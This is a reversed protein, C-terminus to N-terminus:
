RPCNQGECFYTDLFAVVGINEVRKLVLVLVLVLVFGGNIEMEFSKIQNREKKKGEKFREGDMLPLWMIKEPEGSGTEWFIEM